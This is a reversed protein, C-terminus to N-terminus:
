ARLEQVDLLDLLKGHLHGNTAVLLRDGLRYAAGSDGSLSGGAERLVLAAAATDWAELDLEWFADFRGCAVYCIDLAASGARRMGQVEPLVRGFLKLNELRTPTDYAFGTSVLAGRLASVDSVRIRKGNLKAGRGAVATFLEDRTADLVAGVVVEGDVELAVSTCFVPYGHAYNVTGDIPDVIWRYRADTGPAGADGEEEGLVTHTPHAANLVERIREECLRDVRTVLDVETSKSTVELDSGLEALQIRGAETAAYIASHLYRDLAGPAEPSPPVGDSM